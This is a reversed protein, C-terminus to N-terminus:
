KETTRELYIGQSFGGRSEAREIRVDEVENLTMENNDIIAYLVELVDAAEKRIGGADKANALENSEEVLKRRLEKEKEAKDLIRIEPNVGDAEIIQPIKDRVLKGYEATKPYESNGPHQKM